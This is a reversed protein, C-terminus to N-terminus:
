IRTKALFIKQLFMISWSLSHINHIPKFCIASFRHYRKMSNPTWAPIIKGSKTMRWKPTMISLVRWSGSVGCQIRPPVYMSLPSGFLRGQIGEKRRWVKVVHNSCAPNSLSGSDKILAESGYFWVCHQHKETAWFLFSRRQPTRPIHCWAATGSKCSWKGHLRAGHCWWFVCSQLYFEYQLFSSNSTYPKCMNVLHGLQKLWGLTPNRWCFSKDPYFDCLRDYGPDGEHTLFELADVWVKPNHLGFTYFAALTQRVIHCYIYYIVHISM